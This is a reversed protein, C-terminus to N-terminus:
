SASAGFPSLVCAAILQPNVSRRPHDLRDPGWSDRQTSRLGGAPGVVLAGSDFGDSTERLRPRLSGVPGTQSYTGETSHSMHAHTHAHTRARCALCKWEDLWHSLRPKSLQELPVFDRGSCTQRTGSFRRHLPPPQRFRLSTKHRSSGFSSACGCRLTMVCLTLRQLFTVALCQSYPVVDCLTLHKIILRSASAPPLWLSALVLFSKTVAEVTATRSNKM